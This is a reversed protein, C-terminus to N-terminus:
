VGRLDPPIKAVSSGAGADPHYRRALERFAHRITEDAADVPVGLIIYYNMGVTAQLLRLRDDTVVANKGVRIDDITSRDITGVM